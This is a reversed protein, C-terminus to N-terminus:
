KEPTTLLFRLVSETFRLTREIEACVKPDLSAKIFVYQGEKQKRVVYALKRKGWMEVKDLTGGSDTILGKVKNTAETLANEDLDPHFVCILEYERM